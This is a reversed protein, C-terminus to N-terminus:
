RATYIAWIDEAAAAVEAGDQREEFQKMFVDQIIAAVDTADGAQRLRPLIRGVEPEYEDDPAGLDILRMLDYRNLIARVEQFLRAYDRKMATLTRLERTPWHKPIDGWSSSRDFALEQTLTPKQLGGISRLM